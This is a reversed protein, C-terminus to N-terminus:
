NKEYRAHSRRREIQRYIGERDTVGEHVFEFVENCDICRYHLDDGCVTLLGSCEPCTAMGQYVYINYQLSKGQEKM